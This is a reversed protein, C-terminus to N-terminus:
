YNKDFSIITIFAIQSIKAMEQPSPLSNWFLWLEKCLSIGACCPYLETLYRASVRSWWINQLCPRIGGQIGTFILADESQITHLTNPMRRMELTKWLIQGSYTVCQGSLQPSRLAIWSSFLVLWILGLPLFDLIRDNFVYFSM